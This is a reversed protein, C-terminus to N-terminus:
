KEFCRPRSATLPMSTAALNVEYSVRGLFAATYQIILYQHLAGDGYTAAADHRSGGFPTMYHEGPILAGFRRTQRRSISRPLNVMKLIMRNGEDEFPNHPARSPRWTCPSSTLQPLFSSTCKPPM